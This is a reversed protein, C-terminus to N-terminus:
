KTHDLDFQRKALEREHQKKERWDVAKAWGWTAATVAAALGSFVTLTQVTTAVREGATPVHSNDFAVTSLEIFDERPMIVSNSLDTM